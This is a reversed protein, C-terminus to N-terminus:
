QLEHSRSELRPWTGEINKQTVKSPSAVTGLRGTARPSPQPSM